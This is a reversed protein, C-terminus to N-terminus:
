WLGYIARKGTIIVPKWKKLDLSTPSTTNEGSKTSIKSSGTKKGEEAHRSKSSSHPQLTTARKLMIYFSIIYFNKDNKKL